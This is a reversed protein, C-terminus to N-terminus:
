KKNVPKTLIKTKIKNLEVIVGEYCIGFNNTRSKKYHEQLKPAEINKTLIRNGNEMCTKFMYFDNFGVNFIPIGNYSFDKSNAM